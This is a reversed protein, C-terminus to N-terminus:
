PGSKTFWTKPAGLYEGAVWCFLASLILLLLGKMALTKYTTASAALPPVSKRPDPESLQTAKQSNISKFAGGKGAELLM